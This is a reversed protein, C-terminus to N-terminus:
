RQRLIKQEINTTSFGELFPITTVVGGKSKVFDAGVIQEITYDGGKVLVNPKILQILEYPTDEEFSVVADVFLLSSLMLCRSREDNIPRHEGKLRKTSADSNLGIILKTGLSRAQALYQLHGSHLLDFCGNTFVITESCFHWLSLTKNLTSHDLVKAQIHALFDM